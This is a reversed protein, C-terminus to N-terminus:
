SKLNETMAGDFASDPDCEPRLYHELEEYLRDTTLKIAAVTDFDVGKGQQLCGAHLRDVLGKLKRVSEYSEKLALYNSEGLELVREERVGSKM